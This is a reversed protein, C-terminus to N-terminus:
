VCSGVDLQPAGFGRQLLAREGLRVLAPFAGALGVPARQPLAHNRRERSHGHRAPNPILTRILDGQEGKEAHSLQSRQACALGVYRTPIVTRM